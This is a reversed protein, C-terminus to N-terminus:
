PATAEVAALVGTHQADTPVPGEGAVHQQRRLVAPPVGWAQARLDGGQLLREPIRDVGSRGTRELVVRDRDEPQTGDTEAGDADGPRVTGRRHGADLGGGVAARRSRLHTRRLDMAGRRDRNP